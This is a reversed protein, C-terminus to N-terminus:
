ECDGQLGCRHAKSVTGAADERQRKHLSGSEGNVGQGGNPESLDEVEQTQVKLILVWVACDM